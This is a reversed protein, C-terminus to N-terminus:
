RRADAELRGSGEIAPTAKLRRPWRREDLELRQAGGELLWAGLELRRARAGRTARARARRSWGGGGSELELTQQPLFPFFVPPLSVPPLSFVPPLLSFCPLHISAAEATRRERKRKDPPYKPGICVYLHQLHTWSPKMRLFPWLEPLALIYHCIELEEFQLPM